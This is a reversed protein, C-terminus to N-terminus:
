FMLELSNKILLFDEEELQYNKYVIHSPSLLSVPIYNLALYALM